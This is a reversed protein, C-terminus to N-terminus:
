AAKVIVGDTVSVAGKSVLYDILTGGNAADQVEKTAFVPARSVYKNTVNVQAAMGEYAAAEAGIIGAEICANALLEPTVNSGAAATTTTPAVTATDDDGSTILIVPVNEPQVYDKLIQTPIRVYPTYAAEGKAPNSDRWKGTNEDQIRRPLTITGAEVEFCQGIQPSALQGDDTISIELGADRAAVMFYPWVDKAEALTKPITMRKGTSGAGRWGHDRVMQIEEPNLGKGYTIQLYETRTNGYKGGELRYSMPEWTVVMTANPAFEPRTLRGKAIQEDTAIQIGLSVLKLVEKRNQRKADDYISTEAM